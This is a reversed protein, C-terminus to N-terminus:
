FSDHVANQRRNANAVRASADAYQTMADNEAKLARAAADFKSLVSPMGRRDQRFGYKFVLQVKYQNPILQQPERARKM